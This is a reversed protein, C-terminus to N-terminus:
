GRLLVAVLAAGFMFGVVFALFIKERLEVRSYYM